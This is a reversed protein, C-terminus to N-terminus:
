PHSVNRIKDLSTPSFSLSENDMIGGDGELANLLHGLEHASTGPLSCIIPTSVCESLSHLEFFVMSGQGNQEDTVGFAVDPSEPDDDFFITYQYAGLLYATWFVPSDETDVQDFDFLDRIAEGTHAAVNSSFVTFDNNDGIDYVPWIYAPALINMAPDDSEETLLDTPPMPINEDTDGDLATQNNDNFDDDDYLQFQVNSGITFAASTTNRVTVTDTTNSEVRLSRIGVALRGGEFRNVELPDSPSPNLTVVRTQNPSIKFGTPIMGLVFNGDSLGMSDVEIHLRRWVSLMATRAARNTPLQSGAADRLGTGNIVVGNLYNQDTSAAIVFNDGPQMTVTFQMSAVGNSDTTAFPAELTGARPTGRNDDGANGM